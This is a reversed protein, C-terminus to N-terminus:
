LIELGDPPVALDQRSSKGERFGTVRVLRGTQHAEIALDYLRQGPLRVWVGRLGSIAQDTHLEGRIRVRWRAGDPSDHLSEVRGIVTAPGSLDLGRLRRAVQHIREGAEPPFPLKRAPLASRMGHAWRFDLEFSAQGLDGLAACFGASVGAAAVGDLAADDPQEISEQVASTADYLQIAVARGIDSALDVSLTVNFGSDRGTALKAMGLLGSVEAPPRGAFSRQPGESVTRAAIAAMRRLGDVANAGAPLPLASARYTASDVLPSGIDRAIDAPDRAEFAALGALLERIRLDADGMDDSPPVLVEARGSSWIAAGRWTDPARRWGTASLYSSIDAVRLAATM